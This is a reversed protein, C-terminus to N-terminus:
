KNRNSAIGFIKKYYSYSYAKRSGKNYCEISAEMTVSSNICDNLLMASKDINYIIDTFLQVENWGNRKANRSNVQMLGIDYSDIGLRAFLQFVQGVQKITPYISFIYRKSDYAAVKFSVGSTNLGDLLAQAQNPHALTSLTNPTGSSEAKSIIKMLAPSVAPYRKTGEIFHDEVFIESAVGNCAFISCCVFFLYNVLRRKLIRRLIPM